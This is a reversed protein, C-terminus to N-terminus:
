ELLREFEEICGENYTDYDGNLTTVTDEHLMKLGDYIGDESNEVMTGGYREMFSKPGDINTSIVPKGLIDAEALVLGFGEYYSSLIFYDCAKLIPYPNSVSLLLIVSDELGLAKVKSCLNEYGGNRNNGGIIILMIDKNDKWLRYFANVLRDHGKEPSYRGINIFKKYDSHITEYFRDRGISCKTSPDLTIEEMSRALIMNYDIANRVIRINDTRGSIKAISPVINDSVAVVKDFSNYAYKLVDMRQNHRTGIEQLMDSHVFVAKQGAFRSYLLLVENEYGNFQIVADFKATGYSRLFDEDIRKGMRRIYAKTSMLKKRYLERVVRDSITLDSFEAVPFFNVKSNFAALQEANRKAKGHYYSIYYNRRDLDIINTLSRLSTTIGNKDLNGAYILINEKGNGPVRVPHLGTDEGLIVFDCLRRTAGAGDYSNFCKLFKTDDYGKESRLERILSPVDYVRPFPLSDMDIYTGRDRLYEEKDYPFLIIKRRTCAFDFFVSSYDTILVDAANLFDYTEYGAPFKRIHQFSRIEAENKRHIALPHFNVYLIEDDTLQRDLEYLQYMLYINDKDSGVKAVTGRWTPMFAYVWRNQLNLQERIRNKSCDDFFVENRPYGALIYSGSSINGLMYDRIMVNKTFENPYLLYDSVVFNKQTNGIAIDNHIKRGLTKLPTGHWTNLYVQGEKKIFYPPFTNDNILYKASALLRVYEDSAFVVIRVGTIGYRQMMTEMKKVYRGWSALYITYSDYKECSALYRIIYFINGNLQTAGQSELLIAKEDVPHMDLYKVYNCKARWYQDKLKKIVGGGTVRSM